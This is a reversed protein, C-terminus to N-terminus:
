KRLSICFHRSLIPFHSSISCVKLLDTPSAILQAVAGSIIGGVAARLLLNPSVDVDKAEVSEATKQGSRSRRAKESAPPIEFVYNRIFEYIPM